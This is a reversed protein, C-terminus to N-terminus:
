IRGAIINLIIKRAESFSFGYGLAANWLAQTEAPYTEPPKPLLALIRKYGGYVDRISQLEPRPDAAWDQAHAVVAAVRKIKEINVDSIPLVLPAWSEGAFQTEFLAYVADDADDAVLILVIDVSYIM